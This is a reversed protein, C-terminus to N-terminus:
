PKRYIFYFLVILFVILLVIVIGVTILIGKYKVFCNCTNRVSNNRSYETTEASPEEINIVSTSNEEEQHNTISEVNTDKTEFIASSQGIENSRNAGFSEKGQNDDTANLGTKNELSETSLLNGDALMDESCRNDEKLESIADETHNTVYNETNNKDLLVKMDVSETKTEPELALQEDHMYAMNDHAGLKNKSTKEDNVEEDRKINIVVQERDTLNTEVIATSLSTKTENITEIHNVHKVKPRRPVNRWHRGGPNRRVNLSEGDNYTTWKMPPIDYEDIEFVPIEGCGGLEELTKFVWLRRNDASYYKGSRRIVSIRPIDYISCRRLLLDDLTEGILTDAHSTCRGFTNGISDQTYRVDSPFLSLITM